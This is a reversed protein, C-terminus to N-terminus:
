RGAIFLYAVVALILLMLIFLTIKIWSYPREGQVEGTRANVLFRYSRERYRYASIWVPLLLHKFTTEYYATYTSHIRQHDGGIDGRITARITPAMLEKAREFGRPLDVDYSLSIFGSLYADSYPVLNELDWPELAGVYRGPLSDTGVVLLDDFDNDVQGSTPTWATRTVQRTRTVAKGNEYSTYTETTTYDVGREGTYDTTAETDYTWFPLYAGNIGAQEAQRGLDNPAFWLQSLWRKFLDNARARPVEFPLLSGPKIQRRSAAQAVIAAGCFPCVGATANHSLSSEAGCTDCHVTLVEVLAEEKELRALQQLYDLERVPEDAVAIQNHTGCYPCVLSQTGPAFVLNAGCQSCPFQRQGSAAAVVGGM